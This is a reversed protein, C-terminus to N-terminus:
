VAALVHPPNNRYLEAADVNSFHHAACDSVIRGADLGIIRDSFQRALEPQHLSCLVTAGTTKAHAKILALMIRATGPDLSSLPEDVLIVAPDLMIARAIGVRQQQGGSMRDVRRNLMEPDLGVAQAAACVRARHNSSPMSFLMRWFPMETAAGSVINLAATARGVLAYDQHVMAIRRRLKALEPGIATIGGVAVAGATPAVLGNVTRLVTSKGAGSRGLLVCFQGSPVTFSVTDLARHGSPYCVSVADFRIDM